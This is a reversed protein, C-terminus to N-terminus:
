SLSVPPARIDASRPHFRGFPHDSLITPGDGVGLVADAIAAGTWMQDAATRSMQCLLCGDSLVSVPGSAAPRSNDSLITRTFPGPHSHYPLIWCGLTVSITLWLSLWRKWSGPRACPMFVQKM